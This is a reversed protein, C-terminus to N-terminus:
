RQKSNPALSIAIILRGDRWEPGLVYLPKTDELKADMKLIKKRSLWLELDLQASKKTPQGQAEVRLMVEDSPKLPQSWSEYSRLLPSADRGIQRYHKFRLREESSFRSSTMQPVPLARPGAANPDGDTAHYVTVRIEAIRTRGPDEIAHLGGHSALFLLAAILKQYPSSM